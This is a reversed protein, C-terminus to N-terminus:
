SGCALCEEDDVCCSVGNLDMELKHIEDKIEMDELMNGTLKGKLQKIRDNIVNEDMM